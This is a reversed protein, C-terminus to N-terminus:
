LFSQKLRQMPTLQEGGSCGGPDFKGNFDKADSAIQDFRQKLTDSNDNGYNILLRDESGIVRNAISLENKGNLVFSLKNDGESVFVAKDTKISENTLGYGLNALFHGWTVGHAHVHVLSSNQSHMHGRSKPNDHADNACAAIEEYFTFSKFEDRQGYIYLAFNAHYHVNDSKFTAFRVAVLWFTGILFGGIASLIIKNKLFSM